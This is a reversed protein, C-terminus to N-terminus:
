LKATLRPILVGPFSTMVSLMRPEKLKSVSKSVKIEKLPLARDFDLPKTNNASDAKCQPNYPQFHGSQVVPRSPTPSRSLTKENLKLEQYHCELRSHVDKRRDTLLLAANWYIDFLM